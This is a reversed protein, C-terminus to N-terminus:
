PWVSTLRTRPLQESNIGTLGPEIPRGMGPGDIHGSAHYPGEEAGPLGGVKKLGFHDLWAVLRRVHRATIGLLRAAEAQTRKGELVPAPVKIM